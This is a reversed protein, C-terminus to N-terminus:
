RPREPPPLGRIKIGLQEGFSAFADAHLREEAEADRDRSIALRSALYAPLGEVPV